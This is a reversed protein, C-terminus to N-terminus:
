YMILFHILLSYLFDHWSIIFTKIITPVHSFNNVLLSNYKFFVKFYIVKWIFKQGVNMIRKMDLSWKTGTPKRIFTYNYYVLSFMKRTRLMYAHKLSVNWINIIRLVNQSSFYISRGYIASIWMTCVASQYWFQM